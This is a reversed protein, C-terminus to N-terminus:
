VIATAIGAALISAFITCAKKSASSEAAAVDAETDSTLEPVENDKTSEAAPCPSNAGNCGYGLCSFFNGTITDQCCNGGLGLRFKAIITKYVHFPLCWVISTTLRKRSSICFSLLCTLCFGVPRTIPVPRTVIEAWAVQVTSAKRTATVVLAAPLPVAVPKIAVEMSACAYAKSFTRIMPANVIWALAPASAQATKAADAVRAQFDYFSFESLRFCCYYMPQSNLLLKITSRFAVLIMSFFFFFVSFLCYSVFQTRLGLSNAADM